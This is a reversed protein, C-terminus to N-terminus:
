TLITNLKIIISTITGHVHEVFAPLQSDSKCLAHVCQLHVPTCADCYAGATAILHLSNKTQECFYNNSECKNQNITCTRITAVLILQHLAANDFEVSSKLSITHSMLLPASEEGIHQTTATIQVSKTIDTKTCIIRTTDM